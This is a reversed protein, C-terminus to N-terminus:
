GRFTASWQTMLRRADDDLCAASQCLTFIDLHEDVDRADQLVLRGTFTEVTVLRDDYVTFTTMPGRPLRAGYPIVGIQVSPLHSLSILRDIQVAMAHPEVVAWKVAQETLLFTFTKSTDYLISQREIKRAMTRSKDGPAHYLTAKIYEPTSLLATIMSPLFYRLERANVELAALEAQRQELGRRWLTRVDQWETNAMRALAGVEEVIGAPTDLARLIIEVDVLSPTVKGTEIKSIKSQSINCRAALRDGTLGALLRLQRLREALEAKGRGLQYPDFTM